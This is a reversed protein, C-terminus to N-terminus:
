IVSFGASYHATADFHFVGTNSLFFSNRSLLHSISFFSPCSIFIFAVILMPIWVGADSARPLVSCSKCPEGLMAKLGRMVLLRSVVRSSFCVQVVMSLLLLLQLEQKLRLQQRNFCKERYGKRHKSQVQCLPSPLHHSPELLLRKIFLFTTIFHISNSSLQDLFM